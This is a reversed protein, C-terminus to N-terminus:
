SSQVAVITVFCFGAVKRDVVISWVIVLLSRFANLLLSSALIHNAFVSSFDMIPNDWVCTTREAGPLGLIIEDFSFCPPAIANGRNSPREAMYHPQSTSRPLGIEKSHRKKEEWNLRSQPPSDYADSRLFRNDCFRVQLPTSPCTSSSHVFPNKRQLNRKKPKWETGQTQDTRTNTM